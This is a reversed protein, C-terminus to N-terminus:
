SDDAELWESLQKQRKDEVYKLFNQQRELRKETYLKLKSELVEENGAGNYTRKLEAYACKLDSDM